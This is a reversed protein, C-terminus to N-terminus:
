GGEQQSPYLVTTDCEVASGDLVLQSQNLKTIQWLPELYKSLWSWFKCNKVNQLIQDRSLPNTKFDSKKSSKFM